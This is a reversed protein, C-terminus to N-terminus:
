KLKELPGFIDEIRERWSGELLYRYVDAGSFYLAMSISDVSGNDLVPLGLWEPSAANYDAAFKKLNEVRDMHNANSGLRRDKARRLVAKMKAYAESYRGAKEEQLAKLARCDREYVYRNYAAPLFSLVIVIVPLIMGGIIIIRRTKSPQQASDKRSKEQSIDDKAKPRSHVVPQQQPPMVLFSKGCQDCKLAKAHNVAGCESCFKAKECIFEKQCVPCELSMGLYEDPTEPYEQKCHPCITKM